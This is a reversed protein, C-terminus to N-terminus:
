SSEGRITRVVRETQERLLAQSGCNHIVYDSGEMKRAQDLQARIRAGAESETLGREALRRMQDMSPSTVCVVVDWHEEDRIEFLLPIIVAAYGTGAPQGGIWNEIRRMIAPHTLANLRQLREPDSFVQTGLRVRDIEGDAGLVSPGFEALVAAYAEGARGLVVHGLGDAECVPIGMEMMLRGVLSKGCAIGGTIALTLM